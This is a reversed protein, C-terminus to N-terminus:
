QWPATLVVVLGPATVDAPLEFFRPAPGTLQPFEAILSLAAQRQTEDGETFFVTSVAVDENLYGGVGPTEWGAAQLVGAVDAALGTIDTANLVTVPAHVPAAPPAEVALEPTELPPLVATQGTVAPATSQTATSDAAAEETGPSAVKYVGLVSLAVVVMAVLGLLVRRPRRPADEDDPIGVPEGSRKAAKRRAMEAAQREARMAARGGVPGAANTRVPREGPRPAAFEASDLEPGVFEAGPSGARDFPEDAYPADVYPARDLAADDIGAAALEASDIEVARGRTWRGRRVPREPIATTVPAPPVRLGLQGSAEASFDVDLPESSRSPKTWDGYAPSPAGGPSSPRPLRPAPGSPRAGGALLGPGTSVLAPEDDVWARAPRPLVPTPSAGAARSSRDVPVFSVSRGDGARGGPLEPSPVARFPAASTRPAAAPVPPLPLRSRPVPPVADAPGSGRLTRAATAGSRGPATPHDSLREAPAERWLGDPVDTRRRGAAVSAGGRDLGDSDSSTHRGM